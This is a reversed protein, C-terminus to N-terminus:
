FNDGEERDKPLEANVMKYLSNVSEELSLFRKEILKNKDDLEDKMFKSIETSVKLGHDICHRKYNEHLSKDVSITITYAM